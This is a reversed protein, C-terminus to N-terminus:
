LGDLSPCLAFNTISRPTVTLTRDTVSVNATQELFNPDRPTVNSDAPTLAHDFEMYCCGMSGDSNIKIVIADDGTSFPDGTGVVIYDRDSTQQIDNMMYSENQVPRYYKSWEVTDGTSDIKAVVTWYIGGTGYRSMFAYGGDNSAVAITPVGTTSGYSKQWDISGTDSMKIIWAQGPAGDAKRAGLIYGGVPALQISSLEDNAPGGFLSEWDKALGTTKIVFGDMAGFSNSNNLVQGGIVYGSNDATELIACAWERSLDNGYIKDDQRNGSLDDVKILLIDEDSTPAFFDTTQGTIIYDGGDTEQLDGSYSDMFDNKTPYGYTKAWTGPYAGGWNGNKDIKFVLIDGAGTNTRGGIIYYGDSTQRVRYAISSFGSIGYTNSWEARGSADIKVVWIEDPLSSYSGVLIYGDDSTQEIAEFLGQGPAVSSIKYAKAWPYDPTHKFRSVTNLRFEQNRKQSTLDIEVARLSFINDIPDSIVTNNEDYYGLSLRSVDEALLYSQGACEKRQITQGSLRYNIYSADPNILTFDNQQALVLTSASQIDRVLWDVAIAASQSVQSKDALTRYVFISYNFIVSIATAVIVFIGISILIELLTLGSSKTKIKM